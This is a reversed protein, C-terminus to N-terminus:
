NREEQQGFNSRGLWGISLWPSTMNTGCVNRNGIYSVNVRLPIMPLMKGLTGDQKM